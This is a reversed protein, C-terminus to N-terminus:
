IPKRDSVLYVGIEIPFKLFVKKTSRPDLVLTKQLNILLYTALSKPKNLPEVPNLIIKGNNSLLNKEVKEELCIRRYILCEDEKQVSISLDKQEINVPIDYEGFM